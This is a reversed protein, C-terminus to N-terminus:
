PTTSDAVVQVGELSSPLQSGSGPGLVSLASALADATAADGALVTVAYGTTLAQGSRPDLVHSYRIGGHELYQESDGSTAIGCNAVDMNRTSRGSDLAIGVSWGSRGEPPDGIALDGGIDVLARSCGHEALVALAVDAALGKGFGGFDITTGQEHFTVVSAQEDVEVRNWGVSEMATSIAEDGPPQGSEFAVRWLRTLSGCTVDFAGGTEASLELSRSLASALEPSVRHPKGHLKEELLRIESEPNYDSLVMELQTISRFAEQAAQRAQFEDGADILIRVRTGM